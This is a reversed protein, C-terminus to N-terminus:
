GNPDPEFCAPCWPKRLVHHREFALDTLRVTLIRGEVASDMVGSLVKVAELSVLNAALGAGFVLNARNASEDRKRGDLRREYKFSDEPNGACAISRMRYCLYCATQHPVFYPGVVVEAGSPACAIWRVDGALCVRNLKYIMNAQSADLCCVVIDSGRVAADLEDESEIENSVLDVQVGPAAAAILSAVAEVRPTGLGTGLAPGLYVDAPVVHLSDVCRVTGVGAAALAVAAAAGTGGLGVVTATAAALREHPVDGPALEHFLNLQPAMRQRTATDLTENAAEVVVGHDVLLELSRVLDDRTFLDSTAEAIADVTHDGDLLPLVRDRFERFAFGKLKLSRQESVIHLVEDGSDDPPDVWVSYHRPLLPRLM